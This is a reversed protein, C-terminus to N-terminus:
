SLAVTGDSCIVETASVGENWCDGLTIANWQAVTGAFNIETLNTCYQFAYTGINTVSDPIDISTLSTCGYFASYGIITDTIASATYRYATGNAEDQLEAWTLFTGDFNAGPVVVTESTVNYYFHGSWTGFLANSIDAVSITETYTRAQTNDGTYAMGAFTVDLTKTDDANISNTLTVSTDATVSIKKDSPWTGSLTVTGSGGPALLAPVTVTYAETNTATYVVATGNTYDTTEAAHAMPVASVLLVAALLFSIIKKM